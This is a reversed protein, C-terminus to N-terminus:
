KQRREKVKIPPINESLKVLASEIESLISVVETESDFDPNRNKTDKASKLELNIYSKALAFGRKARDPVNEDSLQGIKEELTQIAKESSFSENTRAADQLIPVIKQFAMRVGIRIEQLRNLESIEGDGTGDEFIVAAITLRTKGESNVIFKEIKSDNPRLVWGAILGGREVGSVNIKGNFEESVRVRYAAISKDYNNKFTVEIENRNNKEGLEKVSEVVLSRTKNEIFVKEPSKSQAFGWITYGMVIFAVLTLLILLQKKM